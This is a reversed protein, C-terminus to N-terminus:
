VKTRMSKENDARLKSIEEGSELRRIKEKLSHIKLEMSSKELFNYGIM